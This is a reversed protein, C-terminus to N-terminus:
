RTTVRLTEEQWARIGPIAVGAVVVKRIKVLDPLKYDNPLLNFDTVEFQWVKTSGLTGSETGYSKQAPPTVPALQVPETLEGKLKMEAQAVEERLRNIREQELRIREQERRYDLVKQRTVSDAQLIPAVFNKFAENLAKLHDNIPGIYEHRKGEIAKKLKAIITLDDTAAEIDSTSQIVRAQAYEQLKVGEQYLSAVRPDVDPRIRVLATELEGVERAELM